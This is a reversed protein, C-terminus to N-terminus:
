RLHEFLLDDKGSFNQEKKLMRSLYFHFMKRISPGNIHETIREDPNDFSGEETPSM